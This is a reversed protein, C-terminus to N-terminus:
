EEIKRKVERKKLHLIRFRNLSSQIQHSSLQSAPIQVVKTQIIECQANHYFM